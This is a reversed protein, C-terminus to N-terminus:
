EEKFPKTNLNVIKAEGEGYVLDGGFEVEVFDFPNSGDEYDLSYIYKLFKERAEDGCQSPEWGEKSGDPAIFFSKYGNAMGEIIPSILVEGAQYSDPDEKFAKNFITKAKRHAKKIVNKDCTTVVITNHKIYGM